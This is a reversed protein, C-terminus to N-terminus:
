PLLHGHEHVPAGTGRCGVGTPTDRLHDTSTQAVGDRRGDEKDRSVTSRRLGVVELGPDPHSWLFDEHHHVLTRVERAGSSWSHRDVYVPSVQPPRGPGGRGGVDRPTSPGHSDLRTLLCSVPVRLGVGGGDWSLRSPYVTVYFTGSVVGGPVLSGVCEEAPCTPPCVVGAVLVPHTSQDTSSCPGPVLLQVQEVHGDPQVEQVQDPLSM